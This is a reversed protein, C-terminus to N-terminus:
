LYMKNRNIREVSGKKKSSMEDYSGRRNGDKERERAPQVSRRAVATKTGMFILARPLHIQARRHSFGKKHKEQARALQSFGKKKSVAFKWYILNMEEV